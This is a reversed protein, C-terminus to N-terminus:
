KKDNTTADRSGLVVNDQSKSKAADFVETTASDSKDLRPFDDNHGAERIVGGDDGTGGNEALLRARFVRRKSPFLDQLSRAVINGEYLKSMMELTVGGTEPLFVAAWIVACTTICAFILFTGFKITVLAVPTMRVVALNFGWQSMTAYSMALSRLHNPAVEASVSWTVSSWGLGYGVVFIYIMALTVYGVGDVPVSGSAPRVAQYIAIWFLTFIQIIGGLILCWKRGLQEIAVVLFLATTVIKVIGYVGTALLSASPGSVGLTKFIQPAFVNIANTGTWQQFFMLIAGTMVRYFTVGDAVSLRLQKAFSLKSKGELDAEIESVMSTINPHEAPLANIISLAQAGEAARDQEILWRPSEPQFVITATFLAGPLMQLAFPIRWMNSSSQDPYNQAMGYNCFFALAIGTVNLLQYLGGCRGRISRPACESLYTPVVASSLGVGFGGIARGIYLQVLASSHSQGNLRCTTQIISGILFIISAFIMTPKRGYKSPLYLGTAAGIFCGAQLVSVINGKLNALEKDKGRLGFDSQFAPFDLIGGILGTDWGFLMGAMCTSLALLYVRYHIALEEKIAAFGLRKSAKQDGAGLHADYDIREETSSPTSVKGSQTTM